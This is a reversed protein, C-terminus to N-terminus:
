KLNFNETSVKNAIYKMVTVAHGLKVYDDPSYFTNM